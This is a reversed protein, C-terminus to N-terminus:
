ASKNKKPIIVLEEKEKPPSTLKTLLWFEAVVILLAVPMMAYGGWDHFIVEWKEGTLMTFAIATITLRIVNCLLAIPLSSAMVIFKKWFPQHVILVVLSIIVIFATVMRLGNCAEAVAVTTGNLHIINGERIVAYGILELCFVASTTALKQLPLMISAHVRAPLPLMLFLFLLVSATRRLVQWGFILLVLSIISFILSLREASSYMFFLGFLRFAQAGAFAVLGWMSPQIHSKAITDRRSWLIYVAIFPVLLGCSYEDSRQWIEWLDTITPLYSWIFAFFLTIAGIAHLIGLNKNGKFADPLRSSLKSILQQIYSDKQSSKRSLVSEAKGLYKNNQKTVVARNEVVGNDSIATNYDIVSDTIQCNSGISTGNWIVSNAILTAKDVTVNSGIVAPGLIIVDESIKSQDGIIVPWLLRVNNDVDVNNGLWVKESGNQKYGSLLHSETNANELFSGIAKLYEPWSRFNGASQSVKGTHITKGAKLMEPILTEKIDCFGIDPIHELISRKCAYIQASNHLSGNNDFSPNFMITMDSDSKRHESLIEDIAPPTTIGAPLVILLEETSGKVADRICGATGVPLAEELFRLEISSTPTISKKLLQADGNSCITVQKIGQEALHGLLHEITSKGAIPWLSIPLSSALPCRGFDRSGALIIVKIDELKNM